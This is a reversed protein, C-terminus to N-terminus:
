TQAPPMRPPTPTAVMSMATTTPAVMPTIPPSTVSNPMM